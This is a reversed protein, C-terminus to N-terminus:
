SRNIRREALAERLRFTLPANPNIPTSDAGFDQYQRLTPSPMDCVVPVVPTEGTSALRPSVPVVPTEGTAALSPFVPVVPTGGTSPNAGLPCSARQGLELTAMELGAGISMPKAEVAVPVDVPAAVPKVVTAIKTEGLAPLIANRTSSVVDAFLQGLRSNEALPKAMASQFRAVAEPTPSPMGVGVGTPELPISPVEVGSEPMMPSMAIDISPTTM